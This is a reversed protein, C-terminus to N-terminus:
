GTIARFNPYKEIFREVVKKAAYETEQLPKYTFRELSGEFPRSAGALYLDQHFHKFKNVTGTKDLPLIYLPKGTSAVEAAMNVSDETVLVYDAAKLFALYPNDGKGDFRMGGLDHLSDFLVAKASPPTRRSVSLLLTAKHDTVVTRIQSALTRARDFGIDYAKSKGGILVAIYPGKFAEIRERWIEYDENLRRPNVRHTSGLISLVNSNSIQDHEPAIVMDFANLYQKPNQLQVVFSQKDSRQKMRLSHPLTARGAAIYINPWNYGKEPYLPDSDPKLMADPWLKLATPLRDFIPRYQIHRVMIQSPVINGIAEALGLVQNHIGARGDSVAWITLPAKIDVNQSSM